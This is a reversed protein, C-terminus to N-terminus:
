QVTLTGLMFTHITCNYPYSGAKSPAKFTKTAGAAIDGTDFAKPNATSTLTHTVSDKNVVTVTAGPAVTLTAPHFAFNQITVTDAAVPASSTSMSTATATATATPTAGPSSPSPSSSSSCGSLAALLVCGTALAIRRM